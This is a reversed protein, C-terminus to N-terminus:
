VLNSGTKEAAGLCTRRAEHGVYRTEQPFDGLAALGTQPWQGTQPDTCVAVGGAQTGPGARDTKFEPIGRSTRTTKDSAQRAPLCRQLLCDITQVHHAQVSFIAFFCLKNRSGCCTRRGQRDWPALPVRSTRVQGVPATTNYQPLLPPPAALLPLFGDLVPSWASAGGPEQWLYETLPVLGYWNCPGVTPWSGCAGQCNLHIAGALQRRRKKEGKGKATRRGHFGIECRDTELSQRQALVWDIHGHVHLNRTTCLDM